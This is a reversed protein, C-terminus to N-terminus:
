RALEMYVWSEQAERIAGLDSKLNEAAAAPIVPEKWIVEDFMRVERQSRGWQASFSVHQGAHQKTGVGRVQTGPPVTLVVERRVTMAAGRLIPEKRPPAGLDLYQVGGFDWLGVSSTPPVRRGLEKFSIDARISMPQGARFPDTVEVRSVQAEAQGLLTNVAQRLQEDRKGELVSRVRLAQSGSLRLEVFGRARRTVPDFDLQYKTLMVNQEATSREVQELAAGGPTLPLLQAGQIWEHTEGFPVHRATPDCVVSGTPLDVILIQHNANGSVVPLGFPKPLGGHSFVTAQRSPIGGEALLTGLLNAKGKCDGYHDRFVDDAPFPIWGSLGPEIACYEIKQVVFEHMARAREWPDPPTRALLDKVWVRIEPGARAQSKAAEYLWKSVEAHGRHGVKREGKETWEALRVAVEPLAMYVPAGSPEPEHPPLDAKEWTYLTTEGDRRTVPEWPIERGWQEARWEIVWGAPAVVVFSSELVRFKAGFLKAFKFFPADFNREVIEFEAVGGTRVAPLPLRLARVDDFLTNEGFAPVDVLKSPDVAEVEGNPAVTRARFSLIKSFSRSYRASAVELQEVGPKLYQRRYFRTVEAHPKHSDSDELFRVKLDDKVIVSPEPADAGARPLAAFNIMEWKPSCASTALLSIGFSLFCRQASTM